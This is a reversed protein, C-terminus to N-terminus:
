RECKIPKLWDEVQPDKDLKLFDERQHLVRDVWVREGNITKIHLNYICSNRMEMISKYFELDEELEVIREKLSEMTETNSDKSEM